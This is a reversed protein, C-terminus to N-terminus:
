DPVRLKGVSVAQGAPPARFRVPLAVRHWVTADVNSGAAQHWGLLRIGRRCRHRHRSSTGRAPSGRLGAQPYRARGLRHRRWERFDQSRAGPTRSGHLESHPAKPASLELTPTALPCWRSSNKSSTRPEELSTTGPVTLVRNSWSGRCSTPDTCANGSRPSIRASVSVSGPSPFETASSSTERSWCKETDSMPAPSPWTTPMASTSPWAM